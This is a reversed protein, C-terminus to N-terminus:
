LSAREKSFISSKRGFRRILNERKSFSSMERQFSPLFYEKACIQWIKEITYISFSGLSCDIFIKLFFSRACCSIWFSFIGEEEERGIISLGVNIADLRKKNWFRYVQLLVFPAKRSLFDVFCTASILLIYDTHQYWYSPRQRNMVKLCKGRIDDFM